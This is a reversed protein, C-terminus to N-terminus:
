FRGRVLSLVDLCLHVLIVPVIRRTRVYYISLLTFFIMLALGSALGQYLHYSMQVAVSVMVALGRSGGLNM